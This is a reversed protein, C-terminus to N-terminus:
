TLKAADYAHLPQGSELMVYNTIDVALSISRMGSAALRAALWAPTAANPNVDNITLATFVDCGASELRVPYGAESVSPLVTACPDTFSVGFAQAM